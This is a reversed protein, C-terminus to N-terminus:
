LLRFPERIFQRVAAGRLVKRAVSLLRGGLRYLLFGGLKRRFLGVFLGGPLPGGVPVVAGLSDARRMGFLEGRGPELVAGSPRPVLGLWVARRDLDRLSLAGM